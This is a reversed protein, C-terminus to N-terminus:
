GNGAEKSYHKEKLKLYVNNMNNRQHKSMIKYHNKFWSKYLNEFDKYHLVGALSKLKRRMKVIRKSNIKKIIKGTATLSYNIQLFKWQSSLKIIHTKNDNITIGLDSAVVKMEKSLQELCEKQPHIVYSDDMYRGYYKMGKVVKVFTDVKTPYYIAAIQSIQDGINLRKNLFKEKTLLSKDMKNHELSDFLTNMSRSYELDSMYSVDLKHSDVGMKLLWLGVEDDVVDEFMSILQDHHINDFFKSFDSLLIYGENGYKRYYRRLHTDLRKRSFAIGKGKLSAGNDHILKSKIAPLLIKDCLLRKVVRDRIHDGTVLRTKGRENLVFDSTKSYEFTGENLEKELKVLESMLNIEFRQVSGKWESGKKALQFSEYLNNINFIEHKYSSNEYSSTDRKDNVERVSTTEKRKLLGAFHRNLQLDFDPRVGIANSANNRSPNGNTNM